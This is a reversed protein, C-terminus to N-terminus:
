ASVPKLMKKIKCEMSEKKILEDTTCYVSSIHLYWTYKEMSVKQTIKSKYIKYMLM